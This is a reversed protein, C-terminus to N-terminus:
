VWEQLRVSPAPPLAPGRSEDPHRLPGTDPVRCTITARLGQWRRLPPRRQYRRDKRTPPCPGARRGLHRHHVPSLWHRILGAPAGVPARLKFDAHYYGIYAKTNGSAGIDLVTVLLPWTVMGLGIRSKSPIVAPVTTSNLRSASPRTTSVRASPLRRGALRKARKRPAAPLPRLVSWIM